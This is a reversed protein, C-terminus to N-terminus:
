IVEVKVGSLEDRLADALTTQQTPTLDEALVVVWRERSRTRRVVTFRQARMFANVDFGDDGILAGPITVRTM